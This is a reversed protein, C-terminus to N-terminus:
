KRPNYLYLCDDYNDAHKNFNKVNTRKLSLENRRRYKASVRKFIWRYICENFLEIELAKRKLYPIENYFPNNEEPETVTIKEKKYFFDKIDKEIENIDYKYYKKTLKVCSIFTLMKTVFTICNYSKCVEFGHILKLTFMSPYNFIYEKDTSVADIFLFIKKCEDESIPIKYYAVEFPTAKLQSYNSHYEKTFGALFSSRYNLRSFAYYEKLNDDISISIHSYNWHTIKRILSGSKTNSKVFAVYISNMIM